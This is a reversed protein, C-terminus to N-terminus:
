KTGGITVATSHMTPKCAEELMFQGVDSKAIGFFSFSVKAGKATLLKWQGTIPEEPTLGAARVLLYDLGSSRTVNEMGVLDKKVSRMGLNLMLGWLVQVHTCSNIVRHHGTRFKLRVGQVTRSNKM